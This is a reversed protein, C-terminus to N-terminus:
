GPFNQDEFWPYGVNSEKCFTMPLSQFFESGFIYEHIITIIILSQLFM